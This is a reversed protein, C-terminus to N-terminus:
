RWSYFLHGLSGTDQFSSSCLWWRADRPAYVAALHDVGVTQRRVDTRKDTSDWRVPVAVCADGQKNEYSCRGAFNFSVTAPDVRYSHMFFNTYHTIVQEREALVEGPDPCAVASFDRMIDNVDKNTQPKSFETLFRVAMDGVERASDHLAVTRPGSVEQQFVGGTGFREIVRLTLTVQLPTSATAPAQWTVRPGTGSFTGHTASWQYELQDVPTEADTVTATVGISENLDAFNAPQRPRSGQAVISVIVPLANPPPMQYSFGGALSGSRGSVTVIVDANGVPGPPTKATITDTGSVVVDAAPQSGIVVSAGAAFRLGRITVATGGAVPGAAPTISQVAPGESVPPPTTPPPGCAAVALALAAVALGVTARM